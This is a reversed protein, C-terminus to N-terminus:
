PPLPSCASSGKRMGATHGATGPSIHSRLFGWAKHSTVTVRGSVMWSGTASLGGSGQSCGRSHGGGRGGRGEAWSPKQSGDKSGSEARLRRGTGM